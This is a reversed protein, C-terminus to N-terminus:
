PREEGRSTTPTPETETPGTTIAFADDFRQKCRRLRAAADERSAVAAAHAAVADKMARERNALDEDELALYVRADKLERWLRELEDEPDSTPAQEAAASAPEDEDPRGDDLQNWPPEVLEIGVADNAAGDVAKPREPPEPPPWVFGSRRLQGITNQFARAESSHGFHVIPLTPNPPKARYHGQGTREVRWGQRVLEAAVERFEKGNHQGMDNREGHERRTPMEVGKPGVGLADPREESLVM